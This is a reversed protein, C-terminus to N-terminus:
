TYVTFQYHIQRANVSCGIVGAPFSVISCRYPFRTGALTCATLHPLELASLRFLRTLRRIRLQNLRAQKAANLRTSTIFM